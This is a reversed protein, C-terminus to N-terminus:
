GDLNGSKRLAKEAKQRVQVDSDCLAETLLTEVQKLNEQRVDDLEKALKEHVRPLMKTLAKASAKRVQVNEDKLLLACAQANGSTPSHFRELAGLAEIRVWEDGDLLHAQIQKIFPKITGPKDQFWRLAVLRMYVSEHDLCEGFLKSSAQNFRDPLGIRFARSEFGPYDSQSILDSVFQALESLLESSYTTSM